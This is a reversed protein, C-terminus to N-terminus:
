DEGYVVGCTRYFAWYGKGMHCLYLRYNIEFFM